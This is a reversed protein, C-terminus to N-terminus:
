LYIDILKKKLLVYILAVSVFFEGLIYTGNYLASYVYPSVGSPAYDSFFWVGSFFHSAFRGLLGLAIGALAHRRLLGALGVFGFAVPYDLLLQVPHVFWPEMAFQLGGFVSAAFLGVKPGRRLSIWLLPVMSGATISGGHPLHFIKIMSLVTALAVMISVEAIVRISFSSRQM